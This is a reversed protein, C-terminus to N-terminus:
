KGIWGRGEWDALMDRASEALTRYKLGLIKKGKEANYDFLVQRQLEPKGRPLISSTYLEPRLTSLLDRTDQWTTTGEAIIIREGGAADKKLSEVHADAVDRVDAYGYTMGLVADPVDKVVSNYWTSLSLNLDAPTKLDQLAPGLVLPPNIMVLDWGIETKRKKYFEWAAREALTKSARYKVIESAAKGVTNVTEVFEDGWDNETFTVVPLHAVTRLIAGVSSTVIIRKVNTGFKLASELIGLTGHVAPKIYEDPDGTSSILPSAMHEIADVGEVAKDFAGDKTIDEVVVWEFNDGYSSFIEQMRKGKSESRVTGRVAYGQELLTRVVWLAIYGNAGTVLVRKGAGSEVVPM